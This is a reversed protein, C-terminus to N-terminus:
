CIRIYKMEEKIKEIEIYKGSYFSKLNSVMEADKLYFFRYLKIIYDSVLSIFDKELIPPLFESLTWKSIIKPMQIVQSEEESDIDSAPVGAYNYLDKFMLMKWYTNGTLVIHNFIAIKKISRFLYEINTQFDNFNSKNNFLIIKRNDAYIIQFGAETIKRILISFYRQMLLNIMRYIVPDYFKSNFSSIWRYFHTLFYDACMNEYLKVDNLWKEVMRKMVIFANSALVFEDRELKYEEMRKLNEERTRSEGITRKDKDIDILKSM